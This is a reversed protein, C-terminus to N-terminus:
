EDEEKLELTRRESHKFVDSAKVLVSTQYRSFALFIEVHSKTTKKGHFKLVPFPFGLIGNESENVYYDVGCTPKITYFFHSELEFIYM